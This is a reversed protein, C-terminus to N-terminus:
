KKSHLDESSQNMFYVSKQGNHEKKSIEQEGIIASRQQTYSEKDIEVRRGTLSGDLMERKLLYFTKRMDTKSMYRLNFASKM